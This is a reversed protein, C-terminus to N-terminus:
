TFGTQIKYAYNGYASRSNQAGLKDEAIQLALGVRKNNLTGDFALSATQPAGPVGTWQSRFFAHATTENRYGAYAPNIYIQNFIYQSFQADQQAQVVNWGAGSLLLAMICVGRCIMKGNM